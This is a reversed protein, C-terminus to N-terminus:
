ENDAAQAAILNHVTAPFTHRSLVDGNRVIELEVPPQGVLRPVSIFIRQGPALTSVFRIPQEEAGAALTAVVRYGDQEVTYYLSGEVRPLRISYGNGQVLEEASSVSTMTLCAFAFAAFSNTM